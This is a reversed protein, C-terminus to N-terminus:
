GRRTPELVIPGVYFANAGLLKGLSDWLRQQRRIDDLDDFVKSGEVRVFGFVRSDTEVLRESVITQPHFADEIAQLVQEKM